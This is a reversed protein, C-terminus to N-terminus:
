EYIWYIIGDKHDVRFGLSEYYSVLDSTIYSYRSANLCLWGSNVKEIIASNVSKYQSLDTLPELKTESRVAKLCEAATYM